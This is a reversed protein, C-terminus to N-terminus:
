RVATGRLDDIEKLVGEVIAHVMIEGKKRTALTADGFIGSASYDGKGNPDRSLGGGKGPHYEKVAKKMDVTSPAIFLM